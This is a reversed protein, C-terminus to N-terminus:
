SARRPPNISPTTERRHHVPKPNCRQQEAEAKAVYDDLLDLVAQRASGIYQEHAVIRALTEDCELVGAVIDGLYDADLKQQYHTRQLIARREFAVAHREQQFDSLLSPSVSNIFLIKRCVEAVQERDTPQDTYHKRRM